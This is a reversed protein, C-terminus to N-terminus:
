ILKLVVEVMNGWFFLVTGKISEELKNKDETITGDLTSIKTDTAAVKSNYDTKKVLVVLM